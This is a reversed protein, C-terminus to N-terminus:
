KGGEEKLVLDALATAYNIAASAVEEKSELDSHPNTIMGTIFAGIVIGAYERILIKREFKIQNSLGCETAFKEAERDNM